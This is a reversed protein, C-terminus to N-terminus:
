SFVPDEAELENCLLVLLPGQGVDLVAFCFSVDGLRRGLKDTLSPSPEIARKRRRHIRKDVKPPYILGIVIDDPYEEKM